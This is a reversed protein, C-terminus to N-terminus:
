QWKALRYTKLCPRTLKMKAVFDHLKKVLIKDQTSWRFKIRGRKGDTRKIWGEVVVPSNAFVAEFQHEFVKALDTAMAGTGLLLYSVIFLLKM